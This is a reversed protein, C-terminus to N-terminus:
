MSLDCVAMCYESAFVIQQKLILEAVFILAFRYLAFM